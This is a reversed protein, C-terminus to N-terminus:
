PKPEKTQNRKEFLENGDAIAQLLVYGVATRAEHKGAALWASDRSGGVHPFPARVTLDLLWDIIQRGQATRYFAALVMKMDDGPDFRDAVRAPKFMQELGAWGPGGVSALMDNLQQVERAFPYPGSM